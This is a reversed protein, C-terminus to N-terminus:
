NIKLNRLLLLTLNIEVVPHESEMPRSEKAEEALRRPRLRGALGMPTSCGKMGILKNM